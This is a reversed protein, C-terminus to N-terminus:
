AEGSIGRGGEDRQVISQLVTIARVIADSPVLRMVSRAKERLRENPEM